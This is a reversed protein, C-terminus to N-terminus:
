DYLQLIIFQLKIVYLSLKQLFPYMRSKPATFVEDLGKIDRWDRSKESATFTTKHNSSPTIEKVSQFKQFKTAKSPASLNSCELMMSDLESM